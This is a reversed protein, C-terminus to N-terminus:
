FPMRPLRNILDSLTAPAIGFHNAAAAVAALAGILAAIAGIAIGAKSSGDTSDSSGESSTSPADVLSDVEFLTTSGSVENGVILLNEGTHSAASPVFTLGEPGLDGSNDAFDRNNIYAQYSANKPDTIDYVIIGGVREFGIFAYTRGNITGIALGEPEPGKDDSRDDIAAEAHDSNFYEPIVRSTIHEFDEGSDFVREGDASFISFSRGGFTYLEEYCGREDNDGFATTIKLRGADDLASALEECVPKPDDEALDKIRAEESYGDWDRSDGENATVIYTQGGVTYSGVADPQLIGKVSLTAPNYAGDKDNADIAVETHDQYGLPFIREVTASAIDVVAIANNEQLSVYAKSGSVTIYEPELNQADTASAGVKGYVHVGAPLNGNFATFGATRVDDQSSAEVGTRLAIISVSGEPDVSYDEAPEGENAVLAYEGGPTMTVMDPLAGVSVRGLPEAAIAEAGADFFIVEGGDTKDAPEVTAVALGDPRVAVSNITTGEGGSVTGIHQPQAPNTVDLVDIAGANANVTLVRKSAEHYAVIEAASENLVSSDYSGLAKIEVTHDVAYDVIPKAVVAGHAPSVLITSTLATACAIAGLRTRSM